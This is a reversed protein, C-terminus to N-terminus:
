KEGITVREETIQRGGTTASDVSLGEFPGWLDRVPTVDNFSAESRCLRALCMMRINNSLNAGVSHVLAPHVFFATGASGTVEVSAALEWEAPFATERQIEHLRKPGDDEDLMGAVVVHSGPWVVTGGDGPRVDDVYVCAILNMPTYTDPYETPPAGDDIHPLLADPHSDGPYNPYPSMLGDHDFDIHSDYHKCHYVRGSPASEPPALGTGLLSEAYSYVERLLAEYPARDAPAPRENLGDEYDTEVWSSPDSRDVTSPLSNWFSERAQKVVDSAVADEIVLYGNRVFRREQAETLVDAHTEVM